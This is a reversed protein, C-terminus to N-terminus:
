FCEFVRSILNGLSCQCKNSPLVPKSFMKNPSERCGKFHIKKILQLRSKVRSLKKIHEKSSDSKYPSTKKYTGINDSKKEM